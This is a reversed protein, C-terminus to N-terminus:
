KLRRSMEFNSVRYGLSKYFAKAEQNPGYVDVAIFECGKEAFYTELKEFLAKGLGKHRYHYSIVLETVKGRMPCRNTLTDVEDKPEIIGAILGVPKGDEMALYLKGNYKRIGALTYNLYEERYRQTLTQVDGEDISVIYEQLEVLLQTTSDRYEETYELLMM